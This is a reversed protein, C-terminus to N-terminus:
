YVEKRNEKNPVSILYPFFKKIIISGVLSLISVCLFMCIFVINTNISLKSYKYIFEIIQYIIIHIGMILLTNKGYMELIKNEKILSAVIHWTYIGSVAGLFFYIYNGFYLYLMDTRGKFKDSNCYKYNLIICIINLIIFSILLIIRKKNTLNIKKKVRKTIVGIHYFIIGFLAIDTWFPLRFYKYKILQSIAIGFTLFLILSSNLFIKSNKKKLIFYIIEVVFLCLLFWVAGVYNSDFIYNSYGFSILYKAISSISHDKIILWLLNIVYLTFYPYVLQKARKIIYEKTNMQEYKEKYLFGSVYFFLPMHFSYIYLLLNKPIYKQIHGMIVFIIGIGKLVDISKDREM